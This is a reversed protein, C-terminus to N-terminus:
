LFVQNREMTSLTKNVECHKYHKDCLFHARQKMYKRINRRNVLTVQRWTTTDIEHDARRGFRSCQAIYLSSLTNRGTINSEKGYKAVENEGNGMLPKGYLWCGSVWPKWQFLKWPSVSSPPPPPPPPPASIREPKWKFLKRNNYFPNWWRALKRHKNHIV